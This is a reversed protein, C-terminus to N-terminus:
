YYSTRLGVIASVIVQGRQEERVGVLTEAHVSHPQDSAASSTVIFEPGSEAGSSLSVSPATDTGREPPGPPAEPALGAGAPGLKAPKV